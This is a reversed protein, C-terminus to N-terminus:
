DSHWAMGESGDHYLNLLCSNFMDGATQEVIIKLDILEQCQEESIFKPVVAYGIENM